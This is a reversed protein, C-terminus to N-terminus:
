QIRGPISDSEPFLRPTIPKPELIRVGSPAILNECAQMGADLTYLGVCTMEMATAMHFCDWKRRHSSQGSNGDRKARDLLNAELKAATLAIEMSVGQVRAMRSVNSHNDSVPIGVRYSLVSVEQITVISTIIKTGNKRLERLLAKINQASEEGNFIALFISSDFYVLNV